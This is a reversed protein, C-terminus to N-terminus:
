DTIQSLDNTKESHSTVPRHHEGSEGTEEMLIVLRWSTVLINNLTANFVMLCVLM